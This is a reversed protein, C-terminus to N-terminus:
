PPAPTCSHGAVGPVHPCVQPSWVAPVQPHPPARPRAPTTPPLPSLQSPFCPSVREKETEAEQFHLSAPRSGLTSPLEGM